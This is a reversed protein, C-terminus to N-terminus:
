RLCRARRQAADFVTRMRSSWSAPPRAVIGTFGCWYTEPCVFVVASRGREWEILHYGNCSRRGGSLQGTFPDTNLRGPCWQLVTAPPFRWLGVAWTLWPVPDPAADGALDAELAAADREARGRDWLPGSM